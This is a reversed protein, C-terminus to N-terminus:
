CGPGSTTKVGASSILHPVWFNLGYGTLKIMFYIVSLIAVERTRLVKLFTTHNRREYRKPALPYRVGWSGLGLM